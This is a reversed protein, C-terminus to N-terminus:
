PSRWAGASTPTSPSPPWGSTRPRPSRSRRRTCSTPTRASGAAASVVASSTCSARARPHRGARHDDHERELRRPGVRRDHHLGARRVAEGLLGADGARAPAGGDPRACRRRPGRARARPDPGGGERDVSGPQPHLLGPGRAAARSPDRRRGAPGRVRRRLDAGPAAGGAPHHDHVDRPDRHDGDGADAPDADRSMALVDVATRLRKMQEKHEVGFRQEEDVIILGLDKFRIDPNLLRHTGIVIDVTGDALGEIMEKAEKDTQFRSLAKLMSRSAAWGSTSRRTPAAARAADDPVLVAVQKGDQVAKFAARVAIETKGYGVDGCVLRDM